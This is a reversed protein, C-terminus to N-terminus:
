DGSTEPEVLEVPAPAPVEGETLRRWLFQYGLTRMFAQQESNAAGGHGGEVNEYYTVDFSDDLLLHAMKRAHGPHVRDDKTSTTFLIPPYTGDPDVNHYPSYAKLFAWQEPDDPDGYEGVWSAGALLLHYRKMDLLPVACYIAGWHDPYTTYMNGMLLGGNSGGAIGLHEPTTVGRAVLDEGIAAFDEYAKHRNAKLAAQHWRPGYEGGGRINALVYVGGRELWGIGAYASYGPTLSIEFGGYGYLLTPLGGEPIDAPGVQFYPVRTGDASTAFHQAISVGEADFFAPSTKLVEPERGPELLLLQTPTTFDTVTAWLADSDDTDVAWVSVEGLEPLGSLPRRDQGRGDVDMVEVRSRVDELLQLVVHHDTLAYSELSTREDPAFLVAIKRKGKLWKKLPAQLLSGAAYTTGDVTWDERPSFYIYQEHISASTHDPKDIKVWEGRVQLYLEDTFFTLARYALHHEFGPTDDFWANAEVDEASGEFALESADLPSGRTWIRTTRPYGSETLSGEGFDTGVYLHDLDIWGVNSKAEPLEFGGEVFSLTELDYERVVKADSGGPSLSILCRTYDPRLCDAGKWVWHEGDAESLADLDLLIEWEPDDTRYSEWTTRRWLGQSHDGDRWFNYLMGGRESVYAIRDDSDLAARVRSEMQQFAEEGAYTAVTEANRARVWELAQDGEVEELWLLPDEDAAVPEQALASSLALTLVLSM